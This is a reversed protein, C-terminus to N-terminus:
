EFRDNKQYILALNNYTQALSKNDNIFKFKEIALQFHNVAKEGKGQQQYVLALNNHTRAIGQRNETKEMCDLTKQFYEIAKDLENQANSIIGLNGYAQALGVTDDTKKYWAMAQSYNEYANDLENNSKYIQAIIAYTRAARKTEEIKKLEDISKKYLEISHQWDKKKQYIEALSNLSQIIGPSNRLAEFKDHALRYWELSEDFDKLNFYVLGLNNYLATIWADNNKLRAMELLKEWWKAACDYVKNDACFIAFRNVLDDEATEINLTHLNEIADFIIKADKIEEDCRLIIHLITNSSLGRKKATSLLYTAAEKYVPLKQQKYFTILTSLVCLFDEESADGLLNSFAPSIKNKFFYYGRTIYEGLINPKFFLTDNQIYFYNLSRLKTYSKFNTKCFPDNRNLGNFIVARSIVALAARGLNELFYNNIAEFLSQQTEIAHLFESADFRLNDQSQQDIFEHGISLVEPNGNAIHMLKQKIDSNIWPETSFELLDAINEMETLKFYEAKLHFEKLIDLLEDGDRVALIFKEKVPMLKLCFQIAKKPNRCVDDLLIYKISKPLKKYEATIQESHINPLNWRAFLCRNKKTVRAFEYLTKTKGCGGEGAIVVFPNVTEKTLKNLHKIIDIEEVKEGTKQNRVPVWEFKLLQPRIEERLFYMSEDLFFVSQRESEPSKKIKIFSFIFFSVTLILEIGIESFHSESNFGIQSFIVLTNIMLGEHRNLQLIKHSTFSNQLDIELIM